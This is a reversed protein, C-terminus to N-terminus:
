NVLLTSFVFMVPQVELRYARNFQSYRWDILEIFCWYLRCQPNPTKISIQGLTAAYEM